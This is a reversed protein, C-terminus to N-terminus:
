GTRGIWLHQRNEDVIRAGKSRARHAYGRLPQGVAKQHPGADVEMIAAREGGVVDGEREVDELILTVRDGLLQQAVEDARFRGIVCDHHNAKGGVPRAVHRQERGRQRNKRM